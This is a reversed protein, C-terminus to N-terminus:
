TVLHSAKWEDFQRGVVMLGTTSRQLAKGIYDRTLVLGFRDCSERLVIAAVDPVLAPLSDSEDLMDALELAYQEMEETMSPLKKREIYYEVYSRITRVIVRGFEPQVKVSGSQTVNCLDRVDVTTNHKNHSLWLATVCKRPVAKKMRAMDRMYGMASSAIEPSFGYMVFQDYLDFEGGETIRAM